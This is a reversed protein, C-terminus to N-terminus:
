GPPLTDDANEESTQIGLRQLDKLVPFPRKPWIHRAKLAVANRQIEELELVYPYINQEVWEGITYFDFIDSLSERAARGLLTMTHYIRSHEQMLEEVRLPTSFNHRVNYDTMWGKQKRIIEILEKAEKEANNLRSTLKFFTHGPFTCRSYSDWLFPDTNLNFFTTPGFVGCGLYTNLKNRISSNM